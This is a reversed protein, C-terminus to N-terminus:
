RETNLLKERKSDIDKISFGVLGLSNNLSNIDKDTVAGEQRKQPERGADVVMQDVESPTLLRNVKMAGTIIWPDTEPNPNTRYRYSGDTPLKPLGALSHQFKGNANMGYSMAEEQYDVDNAYEVEAWVFDAPFLTRDGNEDKRNFQIAYPIEGLHWGPRYALTGSGGQTGKGGQKVQPRGTKSVGARTGEEADLWVGVPTDVGGLNAVMPPYLKGDKLYFVKYGKGTKKPAPKTRISFRIDDSEIPNENITLKIQSGNKPVVVDGLQQTRGVRWNRIIVGDYQEDALAEEVSKYIDGSEFESGRGNADIEYPNEVNAYVEYTRNGLDNHKVGEGNRPVRTPVVMDLIGGETEENANQLASVLADKREAADMDDLSDLSANSDYALMARMLDEETYAEPNSIIDGITTDVFREREYERYANWIKQLEPKREILDDYEEDSQLAMSDFEAESMASEAEPHEALFAARDEESDFTMYGLPFDGAVLTEPEYKENPDFMRGKRDGSYSIADEKSTTFWGSKFETFGARPTGHYLVLLNGEKDVAKSNTFFEEQAPTLTNGKSDTMRFAGPFYENIVRREKSTLGAPQKWSIKGKRVAKEGDTNRMPVGADRRADEDGARESKRRTDEYEPIYNFKNLIEEWIPKMETPLSNMVAQSRGLSLMLGTYSTLMEEVYEDEEYAMRVVDAIKKKTESAANDLLWEGLALWHPNETIFSHTGEHFFVNDAKGSTTIYDQAFILITNLEKVYAGGNEKALEKINDYMYDPMDKVDIGLSRAASEKSSYDMLIIPANVNYSGQFRPIETAIFEEASENEGRVRFRIDQNEPNFRESLPIVNGNDDYTVPEASKIQNANKPIVSYIQRGRPMEALTQNIVEEYNEPNMVMIRRKGFESIRPVEPYDIYSIYGDYEGFSSTNNLDFGDPLISDNEKGKDYSYAPNKINLFVAVPEGFGEARRKMGTFWGSKFVAKGAPEELPNWLTGHYVVKPNGNEDVVKTNPMALKAAELVMRQATEMDGAKVADMYAKDQEPTIRFSVSSEEYAEALGAEIILQEAEAM